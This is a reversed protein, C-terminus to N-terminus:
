EAWLAEGIPTYTLNIPPVAGKPDEIGSWSMGKISTNGYRRLGVFGNGKQVYLLLLTKGNREERRYHLPLEYEYGRQKVIATETLKVFRSM